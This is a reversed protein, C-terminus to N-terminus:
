APAPTHDVGAMSASSLTANTPVAFGNLGCASCGFAFATILYSM